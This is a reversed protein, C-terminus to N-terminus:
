YRDTPLMSGVLRIGLALCPYDSLNVTCQVLVCYYAVLAEIKDHATSFGGGNRKIM